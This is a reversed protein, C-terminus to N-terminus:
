ESVPNRAAVPPLRDLAREWAFGAGTGTGPSHPTHGDTGLLVQVRAGRLTEVSVAFAPHEAQAANLHPLAILPLGLGIAETILGLPLTDSIGAAWKNITNSTAPAVIMAEAPPLVDPEGPLKYRVRIPHGTLEALDPLQDALWTNATETLVLCTDWGREIAGSVLTTISLVPPAACGVVYLVPVSTM